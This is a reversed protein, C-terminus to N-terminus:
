RGAVGEAQLTAIEDDAIGFSALTEASMREPGPKPPPLRVPTRVMPQSGAAGPPQAADANGTWARRNQPAEAAEGPTLVPAVCTEEGALLAAWEDRTKSLFRQRFFGFLADLDGGEAFQRSALDPRGMLECLRAYFAPEVSGVSIYGGDKTEFLHYWPYRGTLHMDGRDRSIGTSWYHEIEASMLFLPGDVIAVDLYQGRGTQRQALLAAVINLAGNIGALGDGMTVGPVGPPGNPQGTLHLVGSEALYNIDHGVRDRYPGDQGYGSIAAYVLGPNDKSLRAYDIGLREAVGPRFGELVADAQQAMRLYCERGRPDKLDLECSSTGTLLSRTTFSGALGEYRQGGPAGAVREIRTVDAGLDRLIAICYIGPLAHGVSLLRAGNLPPDPTDM